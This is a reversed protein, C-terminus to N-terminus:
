WNGKKYGPGSVFRNRDILNSSIVYGRTVGMSKLAAMLKKMSEEGVSVICGDSTGYGTFHILWKGESPHDEGLGSSLIREGAITKTDSMILVERFNRSDKQAFRLNLPGPALTNGQVLPGDVYQYPQHVGIPRGNRDKQGYSNDVSNWAGEAVYTQTVKGSDWDYKKVYISTNGTEVKGPTGDKWVEYAGEHRIIETIVSFREYTNNGLSRIIANGPRAFDSLRIGTGEGEWVQKLANWRVGARKMLAEGILKEMQEKSAQKLRNIGYQPSRRMLQIDQDSLGLVDKLTQSDYLDVNTPNSNLLELARNLGLYHVLSASVSKEDESGAVIQWGTTGDDNLVELWLKTDGDNILTGNRLLKWYDESSSYAQSIYTQLQTFSGSSLSAKLLSVENRLKESLAESGYSLVIQDATEMHGRVAQETESQQYIGSDLGDRFSEHSLLVGLELDSNKSEQSLSGRTNIEVIRGQSEEDWTTRAEYDTNSVMVIRSKENLVEEYLRHGETQGNSYIVRMATLLDDRVGKKVLRYNQYYADFGKIGQALAGFSIDTGGQGLSFRPGEKGLTFELLGGSVGGGLMSANLLNFQTTGKLAYEVANASLSGVMNNLATGNALTEGVYGRLTGQLSSQVGTRVLEIGLTSGVDNWNPMSVWRGTSLANIASTGISLSATRTTTIGLDTGVELLAGEVGKGFDLGRDLASGGLGIGTSLASLGAQQVLNKMGRDWRLSGNAVDMGTFLADDVLNLAAAAWPSLFASSAVSVAINTLSRITPSGFLSDSKGDNDRDDDWLKRNYWAVDFSALGRQQRAQNRFFLTYIRGMEGYGEEKVVEPNGPDMQPAYGVHWHFLGDVQNGSANRYAKEAQLFLEKINEVGEWNWDSESKRGFVLELYKSLERQAVIVMAQIYDGNRGELASRSLDVGPRFAPDKFYRYGEIEQKEREIGGLLTEDIVARRVFLKGDQRYGAGRLTEVVSREVGQNAELIKRKVDSQTEEVVKGMNLAAVLSAKRYIEEGIGEAFREAQKLTESTDRLGPLFVTLIPKEKGIRGTIWSAQALLEDMGQGVFADQVIRRLTEQPTGYREFSLDPIRVQDLESLLRQRELGFQRSMGESGAIIAERSIKEVWEQRNRVLFEYKREWLRRREDFEAAYEEQWRKRMGYLRVAQEKWHTAGTQFLAQMQAEWQQQKEKLLSLEGLAKRREVEQVTEMRGQFMAIAKSAIADLKSAWGKLTSAPLNKALELSYAFHDDWTFSPNRYLSELLNELESRVMSGDVTGIRVQELLTQYRDYLAGREVAVQQARDKVVSQSYKTRAFIGRQVAELFALSDRKQGEDVTQFVEGITRRLLPDVPSGTKEELLSLLGQLTLQQESSRLRNLATQRSARVAELGVIGEMCKSFDEREAEGTDHVQAIDQRLARIRRGETHTWFRWWKLYSNQKREAPIDVHSFALDGLDKGLYTTGRKINQTAMMMKFYAYLQWLEGNGRVAEYLERTKAALYDEVTWLSEPYYPEYGVVTADDGSYEYVPVTVPGLHVYDDLLKNWSPDQLLSSVVIPAEGIQLDGQVVTDFYYALGFQRLLEKPDGQKVMGEMWKVADTSIRKSVQVSDGEFYERVWRAFLTEDETRLDSLSHSEVYVPDVTFSLSEGEGSERYQHFEFVKQIQYEMDSVVQFIEKKLSASENEITEQARQLYQACEMWNKEQLIASGYAPDMRQPFPDQGMAKLAELKGVVWLLEEVRRSREEVIEIPTYGPLAYGSSAYQYIAEAKDKQYRAETYRTKKENMQSLLATYEQTALSFIRLKETYRERYWEVLQSARNLEQQKRDLVQEKYLHSGSQLIKLEELLRTKSQTWKQVAQEGGLAAERRSRSEEMTLSALAGEQTFVSLAKKLLSRYASLDGGTSNYASSGQGLGLSLAGNKIAELYYSICEASIHEKEPLGSGTGIDQEGYTGSAVGGGDPFSGEILEAFAMPDKGNTFVWLATVRGLIEVLYPPLRDPNPLARLFSYIGEPSSLDTGQIAKEIRASLEMREHVALAKSIPAYDQVVNLRVREQEWALWESGSFLEVLDIGGLCEGEIPVDPLGMLEGSYVFRSYPSRSGVERLMAVDLPGAESSLGEIRQLEQLRSTDGQYSSDGYSRILQALERGTEGVKSDEDLLFSLAERELRLRSLWYSVEGEREKRSREELYAKGEEASLSDLLLFEHITEARFLSLFAEQKIGELIVEGKKRALENGEKGLQYLEVLQDAKEESVGAMILRLALALPEEEGRWSISLEQLSGFRQQLLPIDTFEDFDGEGELDRLIQISQQAVEQRHTYEMGAIYKEWTEKRSGEGEGYYTFIKRGYEEILTSLIAINGSRYVSLAEEYGRRADELARLGAELEEKAQSVQKRAEGVVTNLHVELRRLAERYEGEILQFEALAQNMRRQTEAETPRNSTSDLAYALVERAIALQEEEISLIQRVREIERDLPSGGVRDDGYGSAETTLDYVSRLADVRTADFRDRIGGPGIWYSLDERLPPMKQLLIEDRETLRPNVERDWLDQIEARLISLSEQQRRENFLRVAAWPVKGKVGLEYYQDDSGDSFSFWVLNYGCDDLFEIFDGYWKRNAWDYEFITYEVGGQDKYSRFAIPLDQLISEIKSEKLSIESQYAAIEVNLHGARASLRDLEGQILSGNEEAMEVLELSKRYMSLRSEVEEQFKKIEGSASSALTEMMHEYDKAFTEQQAEWARRGTELLSRMERLWTDRRRGFEEFATEWAKESTLYSNQAETEWRIREQFFREETQKWASVGREFERKFEEQWQSPDLHVESSGEGISPLGERMRQFAERLDEETRAALSVAIAEATAGESKRRLSFSDQLRAQLFRTSSQQILRDFEREVGRKYEALCVSLQTEAMTKLSSSFSSLLEQCEMQAQQEWWRLLAERKAEVQQKWGSDDAQFGDMGKFLPDGKDDFLVRGSADTKLVYTYNVRDLERVLDELPAKPAIRGWEQKIWRSLRDEYESLISKREWEPTMPLGEELVRGWLASDGSREALEMFVRLDQNSFSGSVQWPNSSYLGMGTCNGASAAFGDWGSSPVAGCFLLVALIYSLRRVVM